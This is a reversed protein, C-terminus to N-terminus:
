FVKLILILYIHLNFFYINIVYVYKLYEQEQEKFFKTLINLKNVSEENKTELKSCNNELDVIDSKLVEIHDTIIM